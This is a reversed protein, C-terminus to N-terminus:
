TCSIADGGSSGVTTSCSTKCKCFCCVSFLPPHPHLFPFVLDAHDPIVTLHTHSSPWPNPSGLLQCCFSKEYGMWWRMQNTFSCSNLTAVFPPVSRSPTLDPSPLSLTSPYIPQTAVNPHSSQSARGNSCAPGGFSRFDWSARGHYQVHPRLTSCRPFAVAPSVSAQM